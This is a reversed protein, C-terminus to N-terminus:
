VTNLLPEREDERIEEIESVDDLAELKEAEASDEMAQQILEGLQAYTADIKAWSEAHDGEEGAYTDQVASAFLNLREVCM